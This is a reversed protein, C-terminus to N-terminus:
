DRTDRSKWSVPNVSGPNLKRDNSSLHSRLTLGDKDVCVPYNISRIVSAPHCIGSSLAWDFCRYCRQNRFMQLVTQITFEPFYRRRRTPM